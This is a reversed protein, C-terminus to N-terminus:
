RGPISEIQHSFVYTKQTRRYIFWTSSYQQRSKHSRFILMEHQCTHLLPSSPPPTCRRTRAASLRQKKTAAFAVFSDGEAKRKLPRLSAVSPVAVAICGDFDLAEARHKPDIRPERRAQGISSTSFHRKRGGHSIKPAGAPTRQAIIQVRPRPQHGPPWGNLKM